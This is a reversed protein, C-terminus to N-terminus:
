PTIATGPLVHHIVLLASVMFVALVVGSVFIWTLAKHDMKLHMFYLVVLIIKATSLLVLLPIEAAGLAEIYFVAVEVFTLVALIGGILLYGKVPSHGGDHGHAGATVDTGM